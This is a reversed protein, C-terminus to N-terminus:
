IDSYKPTTISSIQILQLQQEWRGNFLISLLSKPVSTLTQRTTAIIEGGINLQIVDSKHVTRNFQKEEKLRKRDIRLQVTESKFEKEMERIAVIAEDFISTTTVIIDESACINNVKILFLGSLILLYRVLLM